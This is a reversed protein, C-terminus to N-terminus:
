SVEKQCHKCIKAEAKIEEACFPCQRVNTVVEVNVNRPSKARRKLVFFMIVLAVGAIFFVWFVTSLTAVASDIGDTIELYEKMNISTSFVGGSLPQSVFIEEDGKLYGTSVQMTTAAYLAILFSLGGAILMWFKKVFQMIGGIPMKAM